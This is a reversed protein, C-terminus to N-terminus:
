ILRSLMQNLKESQHIEYKIKKEFEKLEKPTMFAVQKKQFKATNFGITGLMTPNRIEVRCLKKKIM